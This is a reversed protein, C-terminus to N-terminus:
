EAADWWSNIIDPRKLKEDMRFALARGSHPHVVDISVIEPATGGQLEYVYDMPAIKSGRNIKTAFLRDSYLHDKLHLTVLEGKQVLVADRKKGSLSGEQAKSVV